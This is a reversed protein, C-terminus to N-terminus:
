YISILPYTSIQLLAEFALGSHLPSFQLPSQILSPTIHFRMLTFLNSCSTQWEPSFLLYLFNQSILHPQLAIFVYIRQSNITKWSHASSQIGSHLAWSTPFPLSPYRITRFTNAALATFICRFFFRITVLHSTQSFIDSYYALYWSAQIMCLTDFAHM